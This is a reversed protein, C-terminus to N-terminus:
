RPKMAEVYISDPKRPGDGRRSRDLNYKEWFAFSSADYPRVTFQVFGVGSMLQRLSLRDYMWKHAEGTVRPDKSGQRTISRLATKLQRGLRKGATATKERARKFLPSSPYYSEFQDGMRMRVFAEDFRGSELTRRMAGGSVTRVMQDLLELRMWEYRALADADSGAAAADLQRLYERCIGELDPVAVRCLGGPKLLRFQERMLDVGDQPELHELVHSSYTLDFSGDPWPLPKRIDMGLVGRAPALDVNTWEPFFHSGCGINLCAPGEPLLQIKMRYHLSM